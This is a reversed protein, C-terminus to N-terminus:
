DCPVFVQGENKGEKKKKWQLVLYAHLEEGAMFFHQSTVDNTEVGEKRTYVESQDGLHYERRYVVKLNKLTHSKIFSEGLQEFAWDIYVVNNMHGNHDIQEEGVLYSMKKGESLGPLPPFAPKKGRIKVACPFCLRLLDAKLRQIKRTQFNILGFCITAEVLVENGSMLSYGREVLIRNFGKVWTKVSVEDGAQPLRIFSLHNQIIVWVNEGVFDMVGEERLRRDHTKSAVLLLKILASMTILGGKTCQEKRIVDKHVYSETVAM